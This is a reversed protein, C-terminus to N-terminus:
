DYKAMMHLGRRCKQSRGEPIFPRIVAIHKRIRKRLYIIFEMYRTLSNAKTFDQEVLSGSM